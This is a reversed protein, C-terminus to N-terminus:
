SESGCAKDVVFGYAEVIPAAKASCLFGTRSFFPAVNTAMNYPTGKVWRLVNYVTRWYSTPFASNIKKAAIPAVGGIKGLSLYGTYDCGFENQGAKPTANCAASHFEQAVYAGISYIFIANPNKKFVANTGENEEPAQNACPPVTTRGMFKLWTSLTGSGNQPLFVKIKANKGGVQDWNTTKCDFIGKLQKTSLSAPADTGGAKVSDAAWTIADKAFAVYIVGGPGIKPASSSRGGSSRAFDICYYVAKKGGTTITRDVFNDDLASVGKSSGDPRIITTCGTKPVIKYSNSAAVAGKPLADWSYFYPHAPSHAKASITKNYDVSFQDMVYETTNSGVGVIDYYAPAVAKGNNGIPDASAATVSGAVLAAAAAMTVAGAMLRTLKRM